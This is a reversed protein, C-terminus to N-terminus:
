FPSSRIEHFVVAVAFKLGHAVVGHVRHQQILEEFFVPLNFVQLRCDRLQVRLQFRLIRFVSFIMLSRSILPGAVCTAVFRYGAVTGDTCSKPLNCRASPAGAGDSSHM